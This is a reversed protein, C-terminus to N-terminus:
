SSGGVQPIYDIDDNETNIDQGFPRTTHLYNEKCVINELGFMDVSQYPSEPNRPYKERHHILPM